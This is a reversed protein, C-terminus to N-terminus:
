KEGDSQEGRKRITLVEFPRHEKAAAVVAAPMKDEHWVDRGRVSRTIVYSPTLGGKLDQARLLAKIADRAEDREKTMASIHGGLELSLRALDEVQADLQVDSTLSGLEQEYGEWCPGAFACYSCPFATGLEFPRPPLRNETRYTEVVRFKELAKGVPHQLYHNVQEILAPADGQSQVRDLISCQDTPGDYRLRWELYQATNKNKIVLVWDRLEPNVRQAGAAYCCTQVVYDWPIEGKEYRQFTFHNIAKHEVGTDRGLPDSQIWDLHGHLTEPPVAAGCHPCDYGAANLGPARLEVAMQESHVTYVSRRMLDKTLEEHWSSDDFVLLSRGPFPKPTAGLARYTM